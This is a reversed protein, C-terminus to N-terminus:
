PPLGSNMLPNKQVNTGIQINLPRSEESAANRWRRPVDSRARHTRVVLCRAGALQPRQPQCFVLWARHANNNKSRGWSYSGSIARVARCGGGCRRGLLLGAASAGAFGAMVLAGSAPTNALAAVRLASQLLGCPWAVWALGLGASRAPAAEVQWREGGRHNVTAPGRTRGRREM